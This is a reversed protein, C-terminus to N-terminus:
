PKQGTHALIKDSVLLIPSPRPLVQHSAEVGYLITDAMKMVTESSFLIQREKQKLRFYLRVFHWYKSNKVVSKANNFLLGFCINDPILRYIAIPDVLM